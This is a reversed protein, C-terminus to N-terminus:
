RVGRHLTPHSGGSREAPEAGGPLWTELVTGSDSVELGVTGGLAGIRDSASQVTELGLDADAPLIVAASVGSAGAAIEVRAPSSGDIAGVCASYLAAEAVPRARLPSLDGVVRVGVAPRQQEAWSRLAVEFGSDALVAPFVGRALTRLEELAALAHGRAEALQAAVRAGRDADTDLDDLLTCASAIAEDARDLHPRVAGDVEARIRQQERGRSAV